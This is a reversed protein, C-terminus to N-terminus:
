ETDLIDVSQNRYLINRSYHVRPFYKRTSAYQSFCIQHIKWIIHQKIRKRVTVNIFTVYAKTASVYIYLFICTSHIKHWNKKQIVYKTYMTDIWFPFQLILGNFTKITIYFYKIIYNFAKEFIYVGNIIYYFREIDNWNDNKLFITHYIIIIASGGFNGVFFIYEVM